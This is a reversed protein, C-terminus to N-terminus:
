ELEYLKVHLEACNQQITISKNEGLKFDASFRIEWQQIVAFRLLGIIYAALSTTLYPPWIFGGFQFNAGQILETWEANYAVNFWTVLM